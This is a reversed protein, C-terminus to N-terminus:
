ANEPEFAIVDDISKMGLSLMILRDVGLAIGAADPMGRELASLFREDIPYQPLGLALRKSRDAELRQRQEVADTLEGFGNALELGDIYAEFRESVNSDLPNLRALSALSAPYDTLFVAGLSALEPEIRTVLQHVIDDPDDSPEGWRALAETVSLRTWQRVSDGTALAVLAEV